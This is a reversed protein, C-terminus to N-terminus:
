ATRTGVILVRCRAGDAVRASISGLVLRGIVGRGHSGLVILDAGEAESAEIIAEAPDGEWVLFTARAGVARARAVLRQADSEVRSREQDIRRLFRGGPLRLRGPDVVSLVILDADHTAAMEIARNTAPESVSSLDTALLVRRVHGTRTNTPRDDGDFRPRTNATGDAPLDALTDM